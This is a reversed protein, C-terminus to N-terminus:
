DDEQGLVDLYDQRIAKINKNMTRITWDSTDVPPLVTVRIEAPRAINYGKPLSDVANHIVIPVIPVGAQMAIHFAGKKFAGLKTGRSRTGEPAMVVSLGDDRLAEIVPAIAEIAKQSSSRDVFVMDAYRLAPGIVPFRSIEKKGIGTFDRKLLKALVITDVSSQHNFIFVAPRHSWLNEEGEVDFTLRALASSFEAWITTAANLATRKSGSLAWLPATAAMATPLLAFISGTRAIDTLKPRGRDAFHSVSWSRQRAIASLKRSPNVARPHGVVKLLALDDESDTYFFSESLKCGLEDCFDVAAVRKGDGFCTPSIVKGTFVGDELELETCMIYDIGLERAAPEIQYKTASSVISITHGMEKHAELLARAEPYIAAAVKKQFVREGLEEFVYEAQGRMAGATQAVFDSFNLKGASYKAVAAAQAGIDRPSLQGSFLQEQLFATASYGAILTKDFDFLAAIHTGEEGEYIDDILEEITRRLKYARM